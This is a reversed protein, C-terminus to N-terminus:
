PGPRYKKGTALANLATALVAPLGNEDILGEIKEVPRGAIDSAAKEAWTQFYSQGSLQGTQRADSLALAAELFERCDPETMLEELEPYALGREALRERIERVPPKGNQKLIAKQVGAYVAESMLQGLRTHAGSFTLTRGEGAVIIIDDTGTGTAPNILPTQSSRIDMDWLAATKAETVTILARTAARPSLRRNAMIIVHITGPEFWAGEDKAARVANSEVGATVLATVTLDQFTRSEIALNNLDAGTSLISARGAQLGLIEFLLKEAKEYGMRHYINWVSPPSYSNGIARAQELPGDATSVISQPSAFEILLTRHTFDMIRSDLVSAAAVYPMDLKIEKRSVVEQPHVLNEERSFQEDYLSGALWAALYGPYEAARDILRDPFGIFRGNQVAPARRWPEQDLYERIAGLESYKAIVLEPTFRNWQEPTLAAPKASGAKLPKGVTALLGALASDDGNVSLGDPGKLLFVLRPRESEPIKAVKQQVTALLGPEEVAEAAKLASSLGLLFMFTLVQCAIKKLM